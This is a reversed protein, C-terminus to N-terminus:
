QSKSGPLVWSGKLEQVGGAWPVGCPSGRLPRSNGQGHLSQGWAKVGPGQLTLLLRIFHLASVFGKGGEQRRRLGCDRWKQKQIKTKSCYVSFWWKCSPQHPIPLYTVLHQLHPPPREPPSPFPSCNPFIIAIDLSWFAETSSQRPCSGESGWSDRWCSM